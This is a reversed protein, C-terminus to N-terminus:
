SSFRFVRDRTNIQRGDISRRRYCISALTFFLVSTSSSVASRRGTRLYDISRPAVASRFFQLAQRSFEFAASKSRWCLGFPSPSSPSPLLVSVRGYPLPLSYSLFFFCVLIRPSALPRCRILSLSLSIRGGSGQGTSTDGTNGLGSKYVPVMEREREAETARGVPEPLEEEKQISIRGNQTRKETTGWRQPTDQVVAGGDRGEEAEVCKWRLSSFDGSFFQGALVEQQFNHLFEVTMPSFAISLFNGEM